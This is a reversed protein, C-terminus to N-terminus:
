AHESRVGPRGVHRRADHRLSQAALDSRRNARRPDDSWEKTLGLRADLAGGHQNVGPSGTYLLDVGDINRLGSWLVSGALSLGRRLVLPRSERLRVQKRALACRSDRHDSVARDTAIAAPRPSPRSSCRGNGRITDLEQLALAFGGFMSGFRFVGGLPLPAVGAPARRSRTSRRPDSSSAATRSARGKAPNVFPDLLSDALAISLDAM